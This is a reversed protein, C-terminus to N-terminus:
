RNSQPSLSSHDERTDYTSTTKMISDGIVWGIIIVAITRANEEDIELTEHLLVVVPVAPVM